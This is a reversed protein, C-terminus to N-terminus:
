HASAGTDRELRALLALPAADPLLAIRLLPAVSLVQARATAADGAALQARALVLRLQALKPHPGSYGKAAAAVAAELAAVQAVGDGRASALRARTEHWMSLLSAQTAGSSRLQESVSALRADAADVDGGALEVQVLLLESGLRLPHGEELRASRLAHAQVALPRAEDLRGQELLLRALNHMPTAIGHHGAPLVATRMAISERYGREAGTADGREQLLSALNNTSVAVAMSDAGGALVRGLVLSREYHQQARPYDGLDQYTSALENLANEVPATEAGHVRVSRELLEELTRAAEPLRGLSSLMKARGHMSNLTKPHDDGLLARKEDLAREYWGLAAAHEGRGEAIWGRNHLVSALEARAGAAEFLSQAHEFSAEADAFSGLSQEAVGRVMLAHALATDDPPQLAAAVTAAHGAVVLAEAHRKATNYARALASETRVLALGPPEDLLRARASELLEIAPLPEGANAYIWGLSSELRTRVGAAADMGDLRERGIDLLERAALQRGPHRDPDLEAFLEVLFDTAATAALAEESARAQAARANDRELKWQLSVGGLALMAVAAAAVGWRHRRVFRRALYVRHTGAAQVPRGDLFAEVDEALALASPYRAQPDTRVARHVIRDLDGRIRAAEARVAPLAAQGALKSPPALEVSAAHAADGREPVSGALLEYLMLGLGYIDTATTVPRGLLQEPSAYLPTMIRTATRSADEGTADLLKAIGFDLLVPSGDARVMVNGPKLDRHVVLRQHAYHVARCLLVFLALRTRLSPATTALWEPLTKGDIWPMVLYPEGAATSGGDLLGAIHPHELAALVQREREFRARLPASAHGAILKIAVRMDFAGDAREGLLVLGMGGEGLTGLIRWPGIRGPLAEDISRLAARQVSAAIPDGAETRAEDLALLAALEVRVAPDVAEADLLAERADPDLVCVREYLERLTAYTM